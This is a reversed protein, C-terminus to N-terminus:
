RRKNSVLGSDLRLPIERVIENTVREQIALLDSGSEEYVHAWLHSDNTADILQATIRVQEGNHLFSGELVVDVDLVRAIERMPQMTGKYQMVSSRSIVRLSTGNALAAILQDTMSDVVFDHDSNRALNLFPLVAISRFAGATRQAAPKRMRRQRLYNVTAAAVPAGIAMLGCFALWGGVAAAPDRPPVAKFPVLSPAELPSGAAAAPESEPEGVGGERIASPAPLRAPVPGSRPPPGTSVKAIFRYGEGVVTQVFRPERPDDRLIARLKNIATNVGHGTDNFTNDGWLRRHIMERRVLKGDNQLLLILLEMPIRELKVPKRSRRLEHNEIDLEFEEFCLLAENVTFGRKDPPEARHSGPPSPNIGSRGQVTAGLICRANRSM